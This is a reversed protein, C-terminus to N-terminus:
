QKARGYRALEKLESLSNLQSHRTLDIGLPTVSVYGARIANTDYWVADGQAEEKCSDQDETHAEIHTGLNSEVETLAQRTILVGRIENLPKAPVNVNLVLPRESSKMVAEVINAGFVAASEYSDPSPSAISIAVGSMGLVAAELAAAVTGSYHLNIGSNAGNNIGAVVLDIEGKLLFEFALRVCDVSTGSVSYAYVEGDKRLERYQLPTRLTLSHGCGSRESEPAVVMVDGLECLKQRLLFLGESGIGDDNTLLIKGV